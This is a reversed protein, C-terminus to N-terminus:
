IGPATPDKDIGVVVSGADAMANAIRTGTAGLGLIVTHDSLFRLRWRAFEDRFAVSVTQAVTSAAVLPAIFRAIELRWNLDSSEGYDLTILQLTLYVTDLFSRDIGAERAQQRFGGIGLVLVAIWFAGLLYWRRRASLKRM